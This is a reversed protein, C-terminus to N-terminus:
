KILFKISDVWIENLLVNAAYTLNKIRVSALTVCAQMCLM